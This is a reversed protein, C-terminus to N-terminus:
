LLALVRSDKDRMQGVEKIIEERMLKALAEGEDDDLDTRWGSGFPSKWWQKKAGPTDRELKERQREDPRPIIHYHVHPVVQAANVGNNQVLNFDAYGSVNCAARAVVPLWAGVVANEAPSLDSLKERHARPCVLVHARTLPLIDLFAIVDPTSLVIHSQQQQAPPTPPPAPAPTSPPFSPYSTSIECFACVGSRAQSSLTALVTSPLLSM